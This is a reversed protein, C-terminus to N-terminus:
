FRGHDIISKLLITNRKIEHYISSIHVNLIHAIKQKSTGKSLEIAIIDRDQPTFHKYKKM